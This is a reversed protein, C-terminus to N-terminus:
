KQAGSESNLIAYVAMNESGMQRTVATDTQFVMELEPPATMQPYWSPFTVLYDAGQAQIFERLREADRIFPIVEPTILGALDIRPRGAFYGITGIDHAAIRAHAPTHVEIWRAVAVMEGNIIAVDQAYARAGM